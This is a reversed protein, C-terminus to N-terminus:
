QGKQAVQDYLKMLETRERARERDYWARGAAGMRRCREPDGLAEDLAQALAAANGEPVLWGTEGEVVYEPLAGSRTAIVPMGFYYAAPILASQTAGIYPLVLVRCARFLAIAEADEVLHDRREVDPPLPAMLGASDDGEGAVVLRWREPQADLAAWAKLLVDVGKYRTVRGFFLALADRKEDVSLSALEQAAIHGLFLHLLPLQVIRRPGARMDLLRQRYVEGHVLFGDASAIVSRNWLHLLRGYIAGPHPDLDHLTHLLPIGDRRLGQMVLPTLLQPGSIHVVDPRARRVASIVRGVGGRLLPDAAMTGGSSPWIADVQVRPDYVHAPYGQVTVLQVAGGADLVAQALDATYLHMGYTRSLLLYTISMM